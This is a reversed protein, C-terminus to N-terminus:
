FIVNPPLDIDGNNLAKLVRDLEQMHAETSMKSMLMRMKNVENQGLVGTSIVSSIYSRAIQNNALFEENKIQDETSNNRQLTTKSKEAYELNSATYQEKLKGLENQIAMSQSLTRLAIAKVDEIVRGNCISESATQASSLTKTNETSLTIKEDMRYTLIATNVILLLIIAYDKYNM